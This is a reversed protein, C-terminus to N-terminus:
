HSARTTGRDRGIACTGDRISVLYPHEDGQHVIIWQIDAELGEARDPRFRQQMGEFVRDLVRRAGLQDFTEAIQEDEAVAVLEAFQEPTVEGVDMDSLDDRPM